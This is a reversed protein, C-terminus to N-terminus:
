KTSFPSAPLGEMNYLNANVPNDAWAYRVHAPESILSCTVRVRDGEISAQAPHFVGDKGCMEFGGLEEGRAILGGGTHTFSLVASSGDLEMSEYLPGSYVLEEGYILNLAWLALRHGVAKKNQPHLDNYEGVDIAVAMGTDPVELAKRQEERLRAWGSVEPEKGTPGFNPLQVYLFPLSLGWNDRWDKILAEFLDKYDYPYGTNAEGQYWLVGKVAYKRLPYIMGNFVGVPKYQFFTTPALPRIITGIKYKWTGSLPISGKDTKLMYPMGTIFAGVNGTMILRVAIVNKGARLLGEPIPYRRPPYMYGTNGVLVGNVYTDDADILTGLVLKGPAGAMHEPVDIERRFWISGRINELQTGNLYAPLEMSDWSRDNLDQAYWPSNEGHLGEDTEYLEHYWRNNRKEERQMTGSVYSDDKCLALIEQFRGFRM